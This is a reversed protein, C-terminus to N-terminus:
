AAADRVLSLLCHGPKVWTAQATTGWPGIRALLGLEEPVFFRRFSVVADHVFAPDRYRLLGIAALGVAALGSRAGDVFLVGRAAVRAAEAFMVAVQGASFHHLSQTCTLVDYEGPRLNSLDLADQLVFGVDFGQGLAREEGLDLYERKIDSAVLELDLNRESATRAAALVFGGHGAALDLVRTPGDRRLIPELSEFFARYSDLLDNVADLHALIRVRMDRDLDPDDLYESADTDRWWSDVLVAWASRNGSRAAEREVEGRMESLAREAVRALASRAEADGRELAPALAAATAAHRELAAQAARERIQGLLHDVPGRVGRAALRRTVDEFLRTGPGM